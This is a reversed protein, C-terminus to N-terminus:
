KLLIMKKTSVYNGAKLTYFYIGSSIDNGKFNIEYRGKALESNVLTAVQEGLLNFVKLTVLGTEPVSFRITTSPNFPNPYNQELSYSEPNGPIEKVNDIWGLPHDEEPLPKNSWTDLPMTWPTDFTRAGGSQGVFRVRCDGQSVVSGVGEQELGGNHTFAYNYLWGNYSPGNLTLTGEYIMNGQDTLALVRPYTGPWTLGNVTYYLPQRPIWYVTDTAPNFVPDTQQSDALTANTMDVRFTCEVTTGSPIVWDPNINEFWAYPAVQNQLGLFTLGRNRDSGNTNRIPVEWGTNSYASNIWFKYLQNSNLVEQVFPIEITWHDPNAADQTMHSKDFDNGNWGNFAGRIQVSDVNYDFVGLESAVSMDVEFFINGDALQINPNTNNWWRSVDNSGDHVGYIRNGGSGVIIDDGEQNTEWTGNPVPSPDSGYVFKYIALDGSILSDVDITVTYVTDGEPDDMEVPDTGWNTFNGAVWVHDTAPDFSGQAPLHMDVSFTVPSQIGTYPTYDNFFCPDVTMNSSGVVVSRNGHTEDKGDWGLGINFKYGYTTNPAMSITITYVSDNDTDTMVKDTNPPPENLWNNFDGPCTVVDTAPDFYGTAIKVKMDVQFTVDVNQAQLFVGSILFSIILLFLKKM